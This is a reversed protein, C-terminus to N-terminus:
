GKDLFKELMDIYDILGKQKKYQYLEKSIIDLKGRTLNYNYGNENYLDLPSMRKNRALSILSIYPDKSHLVGEHDNDYRIGEFEIQLDKGLDKYNKEQMVNEKKLGLLNFCFSHLTRFYPLDKESLNFKEMARSKGEQAANKSFTFYGIKSPDVKELFKELENMLYYTKGTGPPGYIIKRM